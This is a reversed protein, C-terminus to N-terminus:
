LGGMLLISISGSDLTTGSDYNWGAFELYDGATVPILTTYCHSASAKRPTPEIFGGNKLIRPEYDRSAALTAAVKVIALGPKTFTLTQSGSPTACNNTAISAWKLYTSAGSGNITGTATPDLAIQIQNPIWQLGKEDVRFQEAANKDYFKHAAGSAAGCWHEAIGAKTAHSNGFWKSFAAVSQLWNGSGSIGAFSSGSDPAFVGPYAPDDLYIYPFHTAGLTSPINKPTGTGDLVQDSTGGPAFSGGGGVAGKIQAPVKIQSAPM